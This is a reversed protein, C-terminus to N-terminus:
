KLLKEEAVVDSLLSSKPYLRKFTVVTAKAEDWRELKRLLIIKQLYSDEIYKSDNYEKIVIDYYVLAAVSSELKNYLNATFYERYALKDRMENIKETAKTYLSDDPYYAQFDTFAQIAKRTYEQDRDYPPSLEYYAMASNYLSLKTYESGPYYKRVTNYNFAAIIYEERKYAIEALYFQADDAYQSAPYQLKIVDFMNKAEIYEEDNFLEVARKFIQDVSGEAAKNGVKCGTFSIVIIITVFIMANIQKM